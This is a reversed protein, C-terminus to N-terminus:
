GQAQQRELYEMFDQIWAGVQNMRGDELLYLVLLVLAALMLEM